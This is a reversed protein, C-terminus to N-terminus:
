SLAGPLFCRVALQGEKFYPWIVAFGVRNVGTVVNEPPVSLKKGDIVVWYLGEEIGWDPGDVKRGDSNSCCAGGAPSRLSDFWEHNPDNDHGAVLLLFLLAWKM